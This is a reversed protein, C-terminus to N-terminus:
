YGKFLGLEERLLDLKIWLEDHYKGVFHSLTNYPTHFREDVWQINSYVPSTKEHCYFIADIIDTPNICANVDHQKKEILYDVLVTRCKLERHNPTSYPSLISYPGERKEFGEIVLKKAIEPNGGLSVITNYFDPVNNILPILFDESFPTIDLLMCNVEVDRFIRLAAESLQLHYSQLYEELDIIADLM